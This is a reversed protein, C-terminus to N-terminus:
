TQKPVVPIPQPLPQETPKTINKFSNSVMNMFSRKQEPNQSLPKETIVTNQEKKPEEKQTNINLYKLEKNSEIIEQTKKPEIYSNFPQSPKDEQINLSIDTKTEPPPSEENSKFVSMLKNILSPSEKNKEEMVHDTEPNLNTKEEMIPDTQSNLIPTEEMVNKSFTNIYPTETSQEAESYSQRSMNIPKLNNNERHLQNYTFSDKIPSPTTEPTKNEYNFQSSPVQSPTTEPTREM